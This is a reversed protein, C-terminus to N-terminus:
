VWKHYKFGMFNGLKNKTVEIKSSNVGNQTKNQKTQRIHSYEVVGCNRM